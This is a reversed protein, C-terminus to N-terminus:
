EARLLNRKLKGTDTRPLDNFFQVDRPYKYPAIRHKLFEQLDHAIASSALSHDHLVICARVLKGRAADNVGVIACDQVLPHEMLVCEVERPSINYGASIIMDDDRDVFWFYGEEDQMFIDSTVNWGDRVFDKQRELNGLYRCGTPGRIAIWGQVNQPLPQGHKDILRVTYGPVVKGTSGISDVAMSESIFHSLMETAGIGNVIRIGTREHWRRWLQIQLNEGASACKRVSSIDFNDLVELMQHFSTPVCYLSTVRHREVAQLINEPRPQLVLVATVRFYLAYIIFAAVGYTFAISPSGCIIEAPEITFKRPWCECIALLDRHFHAAAKPQGTTGSTFTILAIDDAATQVNRFDASKAAAAIDLDATASSGAGLSTFYAVRELTVSSERALELEEMLLADCLAFRVAVHDLIFSLETKRLLPMTTVCIGGAKLVALWCAVLMPNNGSRLLVRNGPVLGYDEVLVRAIRNAWALLERYTWTAHEFYYVPKDGCGDAVATDLLAEAANVYNPCHRLQIASYDFVPWTKEPPLLSRAFQDVHASPVGGPIDM